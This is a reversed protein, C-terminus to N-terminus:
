KDVGTIVVGQILTRQAFFFIILPLVLTMFSAAQILQPESSFVGNFFTLGVTFPYLEANGALYVLPEFFDNWAYFFHFLTVALLAPKAQPLIVSLFIRIPGAGDIMAAEDMARPITMFYQRLLFINYANAFFAPVILPLWTGTWGIQNFFAYKPVLTVQPPLIITAIVIIFIINKRPFDFRAFGFAVIASASVTGITTLIGYMLTNGLLRLFNIKDFAEPYNSWEPSISRVPDLTRWRGNWEILGSEPNRPDVFSSAERGRQVLAWEEIAGNETPVQYIDYEEGEYTYTAVKAPLIPSTPDTIQNKNKFSTVGGYFLPMMYLSLLLIAFLTISGRILIQRRRKRIQWPAMEQPRITTTAM